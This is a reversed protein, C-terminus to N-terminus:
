ISLFFLIGYNLFLTKKAEIGFIHMNIKRSPPYNGASQFWLETEETESDLEPKSFDYFRPADFEFDIDFKELSFDEAFIDMTEPDIKKPFFMNFDLM